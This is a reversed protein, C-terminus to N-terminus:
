VIFHISFQARYHSSIRKQHHKQAMNKDLIQTMNEDFDQALNKDFFLPSVHITLTSCRRLMSLKQPIVDFM